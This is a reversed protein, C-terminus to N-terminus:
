RGCCKKYKKGSGCPCPDNRGVKTKAAFEIVNSKAVLTETPAESSPALQHPTYGKLVWQRTNNHLNAIHEMFAKVIDLEKIELLQQLLKFVETPAQGNRIADVCEEVIFDAEDLSISYNKRIFLVFAQYSANRDVFNPAGAHLLQSKTFPYFPLQSRSEQENKVKDTDLVISNSYGYTDTQLEEYFSVAEQLIETYEGLKIRSGTQQNIQRELENLSLVGYYYLLGQTLKIWETNKRIQDRYSSNDVRKFCALVEQPMVLTKNGEYTGSCLIGRTKFYDLQHAELLTNGQGGRDALHKLIQYRTEDFALLLNPLATPIQEVLVDILEQKKLSSAGKIGLNMRITSLEPKTLKGFYNSLTVPVEINPWRKEEEKLLMKQDTESLHKDM